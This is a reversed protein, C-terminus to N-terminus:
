GEGGRATKDMEEGVPRGEGGEATKDMEEGVPKGTRRGSDQGDGGVWAQGGARKGEQQRTWRRVWLGTREEM